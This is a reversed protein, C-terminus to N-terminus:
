SVRCPRSFRQRPKILSVGRSYDSELVTFDFPVTLWLRPLEEGVAVGGAAPRPGRAGM